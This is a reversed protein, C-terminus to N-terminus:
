ATLPSWHRGSNKPNMSIILKLGRRVLGEGEPSLNVGSTFLSHLNEIRVIHTPEVFSYGKVQSEHALVEAFAPRTFTAGVLRDGEGGGGQPDRDQRPHDGRLERGRRLRIPRITEGPGVEGPAVARGRQDGGAPHKARRPHPLLGPARM